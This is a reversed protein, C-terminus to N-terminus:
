GNEIETRLRDVVDSLWVLREVQEVDLVEACEDALGDLTRSVESLRSICNERM